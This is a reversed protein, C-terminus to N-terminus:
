PRARILVPGPHGAPRRRRRPRFRRPLVRRRRDRHAPGRAPRWAAPRDPSACRAPSGTGRPGSRSSTPSSCATTSPPSCTRRAGTARCIDARHMWPDRTLIIDVLYGITWAEDSSASTSGNRCPAAGSSAQRAGGAAPQRRLAPPSVRRHDARADHAAARRGSPRDARRHVGRRRSDPSGEDAPAARPDVRGAGGHGARTGGDRPRGLRPMRDAAGLRRRGLSRLLDLFRQYETAALRM